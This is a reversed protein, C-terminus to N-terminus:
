FLKTFVQEPLSDINYFKYLDRLQQIFQSPSNNYNSLKYKSIDMEIISTYYGETLNKFFWTSEIYCAQRDCQKIADWYIYITNIGFERYIIQSINDDMERFFEFDESHKLPYIVDGIYVEAADHLLCAMESDFDRSFSSTTDKFLDLVLKSHQLVSYPKPTHGNFRNIHSLVTAIDYVNVYEPQFDAINIIRNSVISMPTFM